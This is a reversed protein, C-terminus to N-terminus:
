KAKHIEKPYKYDPFYSLRKSDIDITARGLDRPKFIENVSNELGAYDPINRIEIRVMPQKKHHFLYYALIGTAYKLPINKPDKKLLEQLNHYSLELRKDLDEKLELKQVAVQVPPKYAPPTPKGTTKKMDTGKSPIIKPQKAKHFLSM